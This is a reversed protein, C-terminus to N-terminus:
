EYPYRQACGEPMQAALDGVQSPGSIPCQCVPLGSGRLFGARKKQGSNHLIPLASLEAESFVGESGTQFTGGCRSISLWVAALVPRLLSM